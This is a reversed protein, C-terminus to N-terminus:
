ENPGELPSDQRPGDGTRRGGGRRRKRRRRPAQEEDATEDGDPEAMPAAAHGTDRMSPVHRPTPRRVPITGMGAGALIPDGPAAPESGLFDEDPTEATLGVVVASVIGYAIYGIALPFIFERPLFILGIIMALLTVIGVRGRWTRMTFRPWAPYPVNSIMLFALLVMLARLVFQWPLDGIVTERYLNTESFWFYTALTGGAAPSPLGIFHTKSEGAQMVNFRALRIVACATFLFSFMWDWGEHRLVAFYVIMGPALGFTIADVLSDLEEGFPGSAGVARAVRGDLADAIGGLVICWVAQNYNGKSANVIAWIGFFLNALTFGNPLQVVTERVTPPRFRVKRM